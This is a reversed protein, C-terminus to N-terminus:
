SSEKFVIQKRNNWCKWYKQCVTRQWKFTLFISLMAIFVIFLAIPLNKTINILNVGIFELESNINLRPFKFWSTLKEFNQELFCGLTSFRYVLNKDIKYKQVLNYCEVNLGHNVKLVQHILRSRPQPWDPLNIVCVSDRALKIIPHSFRVSISLYLSM